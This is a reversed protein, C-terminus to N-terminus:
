LVSSIIDSNPYKVEFIGGAPPLVLNKKTNAAINYSVSSYTREGQTGVLNTIRVYQVSLVGINNFIVNQIESLNIAQDIQFNNVNFYKELKKNVNQQIVQKNQTSDVAIQYEIKINVIPSDLIDIADPIIRFDNLYRSINKKLTDNSITLTNDAAKSVIYLLSSNPNAPNSRIAARFVRGFTSPMTYLRALLDRKEVVRSQAAAFAPILSQLESLTLADLGGTADKENNVKLSNKVSVANATTAGSPFQILLTVINNSISGAGVNHRLGGGYRYTITITSNPVISGVTNTQLLNNPNITFRAFTTKGYLPLSFQSPDPIIDNDTTEANGGGFRLATLGSSLSNIKVFRYPAAQIQLSSEVDTSDNALNTAKLYVTDNALNDVEYYTNGYNDVVSIIETVNEKELTYTKFPEFGDFTFSEQDTQGSICVGKLRMYFSTPLNGADREAIEVTAIYQNDSDVKAFNLDETLEFLIGTKSQLVTGQNIVPIASPDIVRPTTTTIAPVKIEFTCEVVAPTAGTMPVNNDRLHREINRPEVATEPSLEHFQHDLYFSQTDGIFSVTDLFMGMFSGPSMDKIKDSYFSRLYSELENRFGEFDKNLYSRAVIQKLVEKKSLDAAM